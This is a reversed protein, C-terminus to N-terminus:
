GDEREKKRKSGKKVEKSYVDKREQLSKNWQNICSNQILKKGKLLSDIESSPLVLEDRRINMGDLSSSPLIRVQEAMLKRM